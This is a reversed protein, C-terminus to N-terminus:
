YVLLQYKNCRLDVQPKSIAHVFRLCCRNLASGIVHTNGRDRPGAANGRL